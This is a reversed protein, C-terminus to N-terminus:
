TKRHHPNTPKSGRALAVLRITKILILLDLLLNANRLYYLDYSLKARSDAISAGYNYCVQAWGSLGPRIWHRIRYHPIVQELQEEIMPREPRPGILSMEGSIVSILQPLEDIRTRRLWRGIGTVRQDDRLSWQAGSSEAEVRMTRLKYIQFTQGYLGTRIQRYVIPGGDQLRIAIAATLLIPATLLILLSCMALDGLRKLRWTARSPQLKFGEAQVLWRTTFIEPPVRQLHQEAWSVLDQITSGKSRKALLTEIAEDHLQAADSIALGYHEPLTILQQPTTASDTLFQVKINHLGNSIQLEHSIVNIEAQPGIILWQETTEQRHRLTIQLGSSILATTLIVPILFSREIRLDDHNFFWGTLVTAVLILGAILITSGLIRTTATRQSQTNASYRGLLYSLSLWSLIATTISGTLGVWRHSVHHFTINYIFTLTCADAIALGFLSVRAKLWPLRGWM